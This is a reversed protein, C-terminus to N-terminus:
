ASFRSFVARVCIYTYYSHVTSPNSVAKIKHGPHMSCTLRVYCCERLIPGNQSSTAIYYCTGGRHFHHLRRDHHLVVAPCPLTGNQGAGVPQSRQGRGLSESMLPLLPEATLVSWQREKRGNGSGQYSKTAETLAVAWDAVPWNHTVCSSTKIVLADSGAGPGAGAQVHEFRPFLYGNKREFRLHRWGKDSFTGYQAYEM